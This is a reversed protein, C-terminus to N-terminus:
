DQFLEIVYSNLCHIAVLDVVELNRLADGCRVLSNGLREGFTSNIQM